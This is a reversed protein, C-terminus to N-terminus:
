RPLGALASTSSMSTEKSVNTTVPRIASYRV